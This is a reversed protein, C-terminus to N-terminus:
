DAIRLFNRDYPDRSLEGPAEAFCCEDVQRSVRYSPSSAITWSTLARDSTILM